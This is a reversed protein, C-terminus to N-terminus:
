NNSPFYENKIQLAPKREIIPFLQQSFYETAPSPPALRPRLRLQAVDELRQRRRRRAVLTPWSMKASPRVVEAAVGGGGDILKFKETLRTIGRIAGVSDSQMTSTGVQQTRGRMVPTFPCRLLLQPVTSPCYLSLPPVTSPCRHPLLPVASPCRLSLPPTASPCRLSLPPAASPCCLSPPLVASPCRLSLPPVAVRLRLSARLLSYSPEVRECPM